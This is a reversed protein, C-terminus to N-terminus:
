FIINNEFFLELNFDCNKAYEHILVIGLGLGHRGINPKTKGALVNQIHKFNYRKLVSVSNTVIFAIQNAQHKELRISIDGGAPAHSKANAIINRLVVDISKAEDTALEAPRIFPVEAGLQKSLKAINEDDTSVVVSDFQTCLLAAEISYAILPKDGLLKSNKKPVGKSGGRAPIIALLRL